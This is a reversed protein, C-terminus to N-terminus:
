IETCCKLGNAMQYIGGISTSVMNSVAVDTYFAMHQTMVVNKFQKLYAMNKNSIINTRHDIHTIGEEGEVVDLGLAGIKCSEIGKILAEIDVLGGRACNIIIVDDKMKAITQENIMHYTENTLPLHLSIIDSERYLTELDTYTAIKKIEPNISRNFVLLRCGFGTLEKLVTSGIAGCGIVGVTMNHLEKGRLGTLSFDNVQGRWLAQKYNRLCMLILMITYDAVGTPPYSANCVKIGLKKAADIDIHNYGITRTSIYKIGLNSWKKLLEYDITGQGLFSIGDCGSALDANDLTPVDVSCTYDINYKECTNKIFVTEDPRVEYIYIKM